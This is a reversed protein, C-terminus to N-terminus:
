FHGNRQQGTPVGERGEAYDISALPVSEGSVEGIPVGYGGHFAFNAEGEGLDVVEGVEGGFVPQSLKVEM